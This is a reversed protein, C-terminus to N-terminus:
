ELTLIVKKPITGCQNYNYQRVAQLIQETTANDVLEINGKVGCSTTVTWVKASLITSTALLGFIVLKKM